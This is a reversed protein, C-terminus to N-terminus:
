VGARAKLRRGAEHVEITTWRGTLLRDALEDDTMAQAQDAAATTAGALGLLAQKIERAKDSV